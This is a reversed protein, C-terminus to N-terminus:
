VTLSFWLMSLALVQAASARLRSGSMLLAVISSVGPSHAMLALEIPKEGCQAPM